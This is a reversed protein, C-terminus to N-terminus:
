KLPSKSNASQEGTLLSKALALYVQTAKLLDDVEVYEDIAHAAEADGPGFQVTPVGLQNRLFRADSAGPMLVKLPAEGYIREVLSTLREVLIEGGKLLSPEVKVEFELSPEGLGLKSALERVAEVVDRETHGPLVRFDVTVTCREPIVNSKFGGHIMTASIVPETLAKLMSSTGEGRKLSSKIMALWGMRGALQKAYELKTIPSKVSRLKLKHLNAAFKCAKEVANDGLFPTSSHAQRGHFTINVAYDGKEGIVITKGIKRSGSPEAIIAYDARLEQPIKEVLFKMGYESGMEEDAVVALLLEGELNASLVESDALLAAVTVIAALGSKMDASGRGYVRGGELEASLPHYRWKDLDGPPVTDMHGCFLLRARSGGFKIRAVINARHEDSYLLKYPIGHEELEEAVVEAVRDENGPPNYSEVKILRRLLDVIQQSRRQVTEQVVSLQM